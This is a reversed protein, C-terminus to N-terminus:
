ASQVRGRRDGQQSRGEREDAGSAVREVGPLRRRVAHCADIAHQLLVHVLLPDGAEDRQDQLTARGDVLLGEPPAVALRGTRHAGVGDEPVLAMVLAAMM